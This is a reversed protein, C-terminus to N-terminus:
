IVNLLALFRITILFFILKGCVQCAETTVPYFFLLKVTVNSVALGSPHM